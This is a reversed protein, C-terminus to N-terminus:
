LLGASSHVAALVMLTGLILDNDVMGLRGAIDLALNLARCLL